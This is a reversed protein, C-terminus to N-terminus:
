SWTAQNLPVGPPGGASDSVYWFDPDKENRSPSTGASSVM